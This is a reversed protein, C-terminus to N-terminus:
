KSHGLLLFFDNQPGRGSFQLYDLSPKVVLSPERTYNAADVLGM